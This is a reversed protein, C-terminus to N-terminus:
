EAPKKALQTRPEIAAYREDLAAKAEKFRGLAKVTLVKGTPLKVGRPNVQKGHKHVEYHLHAGTSRGSTGVYGIIQRQQVRAGVKIRGDIKRMHAYATKYIDNHRIRVYRGYGGNWGAAEVIGDGAAYIPTGSPAAFDLGKHMKTYGLIPHKRRGFGSSIRAGDVPTRLLAKRISHGEADYYDTFGNKDKFRYYRRNKGRVTMEAVGIDGTGALTGHDDRMEDYMLAFSDGPQIERQFDIDFSFIDIMKGLVTQPVGAELAAVYLSSDIKGARRVTETILPREQLAAVFGNDKRLVVVDRAVAPSFSLREVNMPAGPRTETLSLTFKHGPKLKRPSYVEAMASVLAHAQPRDVGQSTIMKMLIDGREVTLEVDYTQRLLHANAEADLFDSTGIPRHSSAVTLPAHIEAARTEAIAEISSYGAEVGGLPLLAPISPQATLLFAAAGIGFAGIGLAARKSLWILKNLFPPRGNGETQFEKPHRRLQDAEATADNM